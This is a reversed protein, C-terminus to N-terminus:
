DQGGFGFMPPMFDYWWDYSGGNGYSPEQPVTEPVTETAQEVPKADLVVTFTLKQGGRYVVIVTEDGAKFHRLARTLSNVNRVEYGGLEVIIDCLNKENLFPCREQEGLCFHPTETRAICRRMREGLEGGVTDYYALTEEDVDIEWGICCSHRCDGAICRFNEYYDPFVQLM